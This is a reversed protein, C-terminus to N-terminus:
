LKSSRESTDTEHFKVKNVVIDSCLLCIDFTFIDFNPFLLYGQTIINIMIFCVIGIFYFYCPTNSFFFYFLVLFIIFPFDRLLHCYWFVLCMLRFTFSIILFSLCYYILPAFSVLPVNLSMYLFYVSLVLALFSFSRCIITCSVCCLFSFVLCCSGWWVSSTIEPARSPYLSAAGCTAGMTISM